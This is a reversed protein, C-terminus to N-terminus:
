NLLDNSLNVPCEMEDHRPIMPIALILEEEIVELPSIMGEISVLPEYNKPLGEAAKDNAIVCLHSAVKIPLEMKQACRQCVVNLCTTIDCQVICRGADDQYFSLKYPISAEIGSLQESLRTLQDSDVTGEFVQQQGLCELPDILQPLEM